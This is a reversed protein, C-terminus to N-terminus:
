HFIDRKLIGFSDFCTKSTLLITLSLSASTSTLIALMIMIQYKLAILPSVGGLIVGTMMGPISVLGLTGMTAISPKLALVLSKRLYPLKAEKKTAGLSLLYLYQKEEQRINNYFTTIGLINSRLSNGLLMGGIVILYRASFVSELRIVMTNLYIVTLFTAAFFSIFTPILFKKIKIASSKLATFVASLVMFALWSINVFPNNLTFLYKLFLGIFTLQLLMRSASILFPKTLKLEYFCSLGLPVLMLFFVYVLSSLPINNMDM